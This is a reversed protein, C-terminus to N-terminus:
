DKFFRQPGCSLIRKVSLKVAEFFSHTKFVEKCYVSCTIEYLCVNPLLPSVLITYFEIFFIIVKNIM